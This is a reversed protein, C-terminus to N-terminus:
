LGLGEPAAVRPKGNLWGLPHEPCRLPTAEIQKRTMEVPQRGAKVERKLDKACYAVNDWENVLMLVVCGCPRRTVLFGSM